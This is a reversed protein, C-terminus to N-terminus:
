IEIELDEEAINRAIEEFAFWALLNKLDYGTKLLEIINEEYELRLEEIEYYHTDFFNHTDSYYVLSPIMGCVCGHNYLDRFFCEIEGHDIAEQAVTSRITNHIDKDIINQLISKYKSNSM